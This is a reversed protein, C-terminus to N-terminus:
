LSSAMKKAEDKEEELKAQRLCLNRKCCTLIEVLRLKQTEILWEETEGLPEKDLDLRALSHNLRLALSLAMLGGTRIRNRRLDLRIIGASEVIFEAVAIAGECTIATAALGLRRVSRNAILAEKLRHIGENSLPNRGLNLTELCTLSPLIASLHSMGRHTLKNNWLILTKLGQKQKRLGECIDQLGTNLICNNKLDLLRITCNSQLLERLYMSDQVSNLNNGALYLEQLMQNVNLASVLLMLPRGSMSANDLRLVRLHSNFKLGQAVFCASNEMLPIGCAEFKQLSSSKRILQAAAIWGRSGIHKSFSISLHVASDYYEMIDFLASAGDEDLKVWELNILKFQVRRFIEELAECSEYDLKEGKMDLCKNRQNVDTIEQLQMLLKQIPQVGLKKCSLKYSTMIEEVTVCQDTEWPNWPEASGSVIKGGPPFCVRKAPKVNWRDNRDTGQQVPCVDKADVDNSSAPTQLEGGYFKKAASMENNMAQHSFMAVANELKMSNDMHYRECDVLDM